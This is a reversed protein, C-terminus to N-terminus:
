YIVDDEQGEVLEEGHHDDDKTKDDNRQKSASEKQTSMSADSDMSHQDNSKEDNNQKQELKGNPSHEQSHGLSKDPASKAKEETMHQDANDSIRQGNSDRLNQKDVPEQEDVIESRISKEVEEKQRKIQEEEEQRLEWPRYYLVPESKTKLFGAMIRLNQQKIRISQQLWAEQECRRRRVLDDKKRRQEAEQEDKERKLRERQRAEIEDRKKHAPNTKVASQSLTGLLSGFLRQSRKKEETASGGDPSLASSRQRLPSTTNPSKVRGQSPSKTPDDYNLADTDVRPRKRLNDEHQSLKRKLTPSPSGNHDHTPDQEPIVVASSIMVAITKQLLTPVSHNFESHVNDRSQCGASIRSAYSQHSQYVSKLIESRFERARRISNQPSIKDM